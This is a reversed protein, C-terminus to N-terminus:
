SLSSGNMQLLKGIEILAFNKLQKINLSMEVDFYIISVNLKNFKILVKSIIFNHYVPANLLKRQRSLIDDSM